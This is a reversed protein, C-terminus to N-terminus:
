AIARLTAYCASLACTGGGTERGWTATLNYNGAALTLFCSGFTDNNTGAIQSLQFIFRKLTSGGNKIDLHFRDNANSHFYPLGVLLEVTQGGTPITFAMTNPLLTDASVGGVSGFDKAAVLAQAPARNVREAVALIAQILASESHSAAPPQQVQDPQTNEVSFQM